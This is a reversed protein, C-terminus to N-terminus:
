ITGSPPAPYEKRWTIDTNRSRRAAGKVLIILYRMWRSVAPSLLWDALQGTAAGRGCGPITLRKPESPILCWTAACKSFIARKRFWSAKLGGRFYIDGEATADISLKLISATSSACARPYTGM